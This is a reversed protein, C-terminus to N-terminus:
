VHHSKTRLGLKELVKNHVEKGDVIEHEMLDNSMQLGLTKIVEGSEGIDQVAFCKAGEYETAVLKVEGEPPVDFSLGIPTIDIKNQKTNLYVRNYVKCVHSELEYPVIVMNKHGALSDFDGRYFKKQARKKSISSKM